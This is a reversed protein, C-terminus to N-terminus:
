LVLGERVFHIKGKASGDRVVVKIVFEDLKKTSEGGVGGLSLRLNLIGSAFEEKGGLL